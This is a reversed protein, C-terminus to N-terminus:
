GIEREKMKAMKRIMDKGKQRGGQIALLQVKHEELTLLLTPVESCTSGDMQNSSEGALHCPLVALCCKTHVFVQGRQWWLRCGSASLWAAAWSRHARLSESPELFPVQSSLRDMERQTLSSKLRGHPLFLCLFIRDKVPSQLIKLM